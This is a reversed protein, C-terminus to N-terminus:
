SRINRKMPSSSERGSGGFLPYHVIQVFWIVGTMLLSSGLNALLVVQFLADTMSARPPALAPRLVLVGFDRRRHRYGSAEYLMLSAASSARSYYKM